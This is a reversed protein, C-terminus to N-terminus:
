NAAPKEVVPTLTVDGVPVGSGARGAPRSSLSFRVGDEAAEVLWVGKSVPDGKPGKLLTALTAYDNVEPTGRALFAARVLATGPGAGEVGFSWSEAAGLRGLFNRKDLLSAAYRTPTGSAAASADAPVFALSVALVRFTKGDVLRATWLAGGRTGLPHVEALVVGTKETALKLKAGEFSPAGDLTPKAELSEFAERFAVSLAADSTGAGRSPVLVGALALRECGNDKAAAALAAASAKIAEPLALIECPASLTASKVREAAAARLADMGKDCEALRATADQALKDAKAKRSEPTELQFGKFEVKPPQALAKAKELDRTVGTRVGVLRDWEIQEKRDLLTRVEEDSLSAAKPEATPAAFLPACALLAAVALLRPAFPM